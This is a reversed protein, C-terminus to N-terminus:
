RGPPTIVVDRQVYTAQASYADAVAVSVTYKGPAANMTLVQVANAVEDPKVRHVFMRVPSERMDQDLMAVFLSYSLPEGPAVSLIETPLRVEIKLGSISGSLPQLDVTADLPNGSVPAYLASRVRDAIEQNASREHAHRAALVRLGRRKLSVTIDDDRGTNETVFGLSYYTSLSEDLQTFAANIDNRGFIAQGGTEDALLQVPAHLNARVLSSDVRTSALNSNPGQEFSKVGGADIGFFQVGAGASRRALDTFPKQLNESLSDIPVSQALVRQLTLEAASTGGTPDLKPGKPDQQGALEDSKFAEFVEAAPQMPLGDSVYVLTRRGDLGQVAGVVHDIADITAEVDARQKRAYSEIQQRAMTSFDAHPRNQDANQQDDRLANRANEIAQLADRRDTDMEQANAPQRDLDDIAAVLRNADDTFRELIRVNGDFTVLMAATGRGVHQRVFGRLADLARHKENQELHLNDIFFVLYDRRAPAAAPSQGPPEARHDIAYFNSIPTRRGGVRLDFDDKTLGPVPKGQADIVTVDVEIVNVEIRETTESLQGSATLAIAFIGAAVIPRNM